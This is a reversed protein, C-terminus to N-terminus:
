VLEARLAWANAKTIRANCIKGIYKHHEEPNCDINAIKNNFIRGALRAPNRESPGEVLVQQITDLYRQSQNEAVETIISNLFRIRENKEEYSIPDDWSAAPTYPRPSYIATNCADYKIEQIAKVSDMFQEHTEGPFGVIVDGTISADPMLKRIYNVLEMYREYTYRRAMRRLVDNNGAQIPVHFYKAVKPLEAVTEILEFTM